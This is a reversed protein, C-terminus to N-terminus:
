LKLTIAHPFLIQNPLDSPEPNYKAPRSKVLLMNNKENEGQNYKGSYYDATGLHM